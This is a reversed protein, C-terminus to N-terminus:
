RTLKRHLPAMEIEAYLRWITWPQIFTLLAYGHRPRATRFIASPMLGGGHGMTTLLEYPATMAVDIAQRFHMAVRGTITSEGLKMLVFLV